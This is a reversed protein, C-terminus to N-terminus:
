WRESVTIHGLLGIAVTIVKGEDTTFKVESSIFRDHYTFREAYQPNDILVPPGAVGRAELEKGKDCIAQRLEAESPKGVALLGVGAMGLLIFLVLKGWVPLGRRRGRGSGTRGPPQGCHPCALGEDPLKERCASCHLLPM